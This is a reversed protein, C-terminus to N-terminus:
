KINDPITELLPTIRKAYKPSKKCELHRKRIKQVFLSYAIGAPSTKWEAEKVISM